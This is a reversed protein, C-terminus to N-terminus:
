IQPGVYDTGNVATQFFQGALPGEESIKEIVKELFKILDLKRIAVSEQDLLNYRVEFDFGTTPASTALTYNASNNPNVGRTSSICVATM